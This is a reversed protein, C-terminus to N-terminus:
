VNLKISFVKHPSILHKSRSKTEVKICSVKQSQVGPFSKLVDKFILQLNSKEDKGFKAPRKM